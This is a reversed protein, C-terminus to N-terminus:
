TKKVTPSTSTAMTMKRASIGVISGDTREAGEATAEPRNWYGQMVQPGKICIEGEKGPPLDEGTELDVVKCETDFVPIGVSGQRLIPEYGAPNATAGMTCETMGYAECVLGRFFCGLMKELISLALPAAGSTALKIGSLDYNQLTRCSKCHPIYLASACRGVM